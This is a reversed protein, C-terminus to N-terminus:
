QNNREEREMQRSSQGSLLLSISNGLNSNSKVESRRTPVSVQPKRSKGISEEARARTQEIGQLEAEGITRPQATTSEGGVKSPVRKRKWNERASAITEINRIDGELKAIVAQKTPETLNKANQAKILAQEAKEWAMLIQEDSVKSLFTNFEPLNAVATANKGRGTKSAGLEAIELVRDASKDFTGFIDQLAPRENVDMLEVVLNQTKKYDASPKIGLQTISQDNFYGFPLEYITGDEAQFSPRGSEDVIMGRMGNYEIPAGVLDSVTPDVAMPPEKQFSLPKFKTDREAIYARIDNPTIEGNAGSANVKNLPVKYKSALDKALRTPNAKQPMFRVGKASTPETVLEGNRNVRPMQPMLNSKLTYYSNPGYDVVKVGTMRTANDLLDFAFTRYIGSKTTQGLANFMPNGDMQSPTLLGQTANIFNKRLKWKKGQGAEEAVRKFYDDTSKNKSQLDAVADIDNMIDNRSMKLNKAVNSKAARSININLQNIDMAALYLRGNSLGWGIPKINNVTRGDIQASRGQRVPRYDLLYSVPLDMNENLDVARGWSGEPIIGRAELEEFYESPLRGAGNGRADPQLAADILPTRSKVAAQNLERITDAAQHHIPNTSQSFGDNPAVESKSPLGASERYMNRVMAKVEPLERIGDALLGSGMIMRGNGDTAGGFKFHLDKIIPTASMTKNFVEEIKRRAKTKQGAKYVRGSVVDEFLTQAGIDTYYEIALDDVSKTPIGQAELRSNYEDGWAKFEPDLTGDTSRVLGSQTEDGLMRAKVADDSQHKFQLGHNIEHAAIARIMGPKDNVNITFTKTGENLFSNGDQTFNYDYMGPYAADFSSVFQKTPKDPISEFANFKAEDTSRLKNRFNYLDGASAQDWDKKGGALRAISGFVLANAGARELAAEDLGGANIAEYLTTAPLAKAAGKIPSAVGRRIPTTYDMLGAFAQGLRGTSQNAAVRRWFPSSGTAELLEDSITNGFQSLKKLAPAGYVLGQRIGYYTAFAQPASSATIARVLWPTRYVGLKREVFKIGRAMKGTVNGLVDATDALKRIAGSQIKQGMMSPANLDDIKTSAQQFMRQNVQAGEDLMGARKNLDDLKSTQLRLDSTLQAATANDGVLVADDISKQLTGIQATTDDIQRGVLGAAEGLRELQSTAQLATSEAKAIKSMKSLKPLIGGGLTFASLALGIPDTAMSGAGAGGAVLKNFNIEGQVPGDRDIFQQKATQYIESGQTTDTVADVLSAGTMNDYMAQRSDNQYDAWAENADLQEQPVGATRKVPNIVFKEIFAGTKGSMQIPTEIAGEVIAMRAADRQEKTAGSEGIAIGTTRAVDGLGSIIGKILSEESDQVDIGSNKRIKYLEFKELTKPDQTSLTSTLNTIQDPVLLDEMPTLFAQAKKTLEGNQILGSDEMLLYDEGLKTAEGNDDILGRFKMGEETNIPPLETAKQVEAEVISGISTGSLDMGVLEPPVVKSAIRAKNQAIASEQASTYEKLADVELKAIDREEETAM